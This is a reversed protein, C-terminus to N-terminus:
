ATGEPATYLGLERARETNRTVEEDVVVVGRKLAFFRMAASFGALIHELDRDLNCTFRLPGSEMILRFAYPAVTLPEVRFATLVTASTLAETTGTQRCLVKAMASVAGMVSGLNRDCDAWVMRGDVTEWLMKDRGVTIEALVIREM